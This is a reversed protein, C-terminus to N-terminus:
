PTKPVEPKQDLKPLLSAGNDVPAAPATGGAPATQAPATGVISSTSKHNALM